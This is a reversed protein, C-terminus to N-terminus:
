LLRAQSLQSLSVCTITVFGHKRRGLAMGTYMYVRARTWAHPKALRANCRCCSLNNIEKLFIFKSRLFNLSHQHESTAKIFKRKRPGEKGRGDKDPEQLLLWMTILDKSKSVRLPISEM